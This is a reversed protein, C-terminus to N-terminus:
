NNKLDLNYSEDIKMLIITYGNIGNEELTKWRNIKSGNFMFFNDNESYEPYKKYLNNEIENFNTKNKCIISYNINQDVSIFNIAILKEGDLLEGYNTPETSIRILKSTLNENIKAKEESLIKCKENLKKIEEDKIVNSDDLKKKLNENENKLMKIKNKLLEVVKKWRENETKLDM